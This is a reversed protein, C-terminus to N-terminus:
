NKQKELMKKLRELEELKAKVDNEHRKRETIDEFMGLVAVVDGQQNMVPVKSTLVWSEVGNSNVLREEQDIRANKSQMVSLDDARYAEAHEAWPMEFDTKGIMERHSEKGAVAAFIKNCGQIRLDRDKWFVARPLNDIITQLTEQSESLSKIMSNIRVTNLTVTILDTCSKLFEIHDETWEITSHQQECSLFGAVKGDNFFPVCVISQIGLPSLYIDAIERTESHNVADKASITKEARLTRFFLPADQEYIEKGSEFTGRDRSYMKECRMKNGAADFMWISSRSVNMHKGISTLMNQIADDWKGEVVEKAKSLGLVIQRGRNNFENRQKEGELMNQIHKEKRRMEEQTAELEEMNQRMEEEQARMEEAQQQTKELLIRTSENVRVTSITSAITEALKEVLEIEYDEYKGFTALELVGFIKENVKLPIILLANPNAGGLGSTITIYENPVDLLYIREGELFSQGIMGEGIAVKKQLYKKREFAYCAVLDLSKDADDENLLFLGGQNSKTYKVVFKLINDYLEETTNTHSRLIEGIQALGSTSWNRKRDDEANNRLKDRMAMLTHSLGGDEEMNIDVAFNGASIAEIFGSLSTVSRAQQELRKTSEEAIVDSRRQMRFLVVTLATMVVALVAISIWSLMNTHKRDSELSQNVMDTLRVLAGQVAEYQSDFRLELAPDPPVPQTHTVGLTDVTQIVEGKKAIREQATLSLKEISILTEKIVARIEENALQFKGLESEKGDYASQLLAISANFNGTIDNEVNVANDDAIYEELALHAQSTRNKVDEGLKLYPLNKDYTAITKREVYGVFLTIILSTIIFILAIRLALSKM